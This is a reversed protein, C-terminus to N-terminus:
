AADTVTALRREYDVPSLDAVSSHRRRPNYWGEIWEFIATALEARTQWRCRDLLELQLTGFVSSRRRVALSRPPEAKWIAASSSSSARPRSPM